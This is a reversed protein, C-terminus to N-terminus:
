KNFFSEIFEKNHNFDTHYFSLIYKVTFESKPSSIIQINGEYRQMIDKIENCGIGNHGDHHLATSVGYELLSSTDRDSPIPTGNNEIEIYLGESDSRWSFQLKYDKRSKDTFGHEQANSIINNLIRKLADKPFLFTEKSEGKMFLPRGQLPMGTFPDTEWIDEAAQNNGKEWTIVPKFTLWGKENQLIYEEIFKEPDIWEPKGFSYEVTAIHELAPMMDKLSQAIYEFAEHVTTKKVRSIIDENNLVDHKERYSNLAYFMAEISSLSQTLAHKRMRIAKRYFENEQKLEVQSASLANYCTNALYRDQENQGHYPVIINHLFLPMYVIMNGNYFDPYIASIQKAVIPEFLLSTVYRLDVGEKATFCAIPDLVAYPVERQSTIGVYVNKSGGYLLISPFNVNYCISALNGANEGYETGTKIEKQRMDADKFANGLNQPFVLPQELSINQDRHMSLGQDVYLFDYNDLLNSLPIGNEPKETLYYGPLLIQSNILEFNVKQSLQNVRDQIDVESHEEKGIVMAYRFISDGESYKIISKIAKDTVLRKRFSVAEKEMSAMFLPHAEMVMTGKKALVGYLTECSIPFGPFWGSGSIIIDITEEEISDVNKYHIGAAFLRIKKLATEENDEDDCLIVCQPFLMAGDGLTDRELFISNGPKVSVYKVAKKIFNDKVKMLHYSNRTADSGFHLGKSFIYDVTDKFNELLFSYEETNLVDKWFHEGYKSLRKQVSPDAKEGAFDNYLTILLQYDSWGDLGYELSGTDGFDDCRIFKSSAHDEVYNRYKAVLAEVTFNNNATRM